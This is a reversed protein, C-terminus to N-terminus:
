YQQLFFTLKKKKVKAISVHWALVGASSFAKEGHSICLHVYNDNEFQEQGPVWTNKANWNYRMKWCDIYRCQVHGKQKAKNKQKKVRRTLTQM